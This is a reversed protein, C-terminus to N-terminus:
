IWLFKGPNESCLKQKQNVDLSAHFFNKVYDGYSDISFLNIPFDSGFLM